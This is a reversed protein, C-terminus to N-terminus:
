RARAGEESFSRELIFGMFNRSIRNATAALASQAGAYVRAEHHIIGHVARKAVQEVPVAPFLNWRMMKPAETKARAFAETKVAPPLVTTIHIGHHHSLERRLAEAFRVMGGKTASYVTFGPTGAIGQISAMFALRGKDRAVMSPLALRTLVMAGTLNVEIMKAIQRPDQDEFLGVHAIGANNVLIDIGGRAAVVAGYGREISAVSSVDMVVYSAVGGKSRIAECVTEMASASDELDAITVAAGESALEEAIGRGIGRAGGTVLAREGDLARRRKRGVHDRDDSGFGLPIPTLKM